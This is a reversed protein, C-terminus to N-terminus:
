GRDGGAAGRAIAFGARTSLAPFVITLSASSSRRFYTSDWVRSPRAPCASVIVAEDGAEGGFLDFSDGALPQTERAPIEPRSQSRGFRGGAVSIQTQTGSVGSRRSPLIM